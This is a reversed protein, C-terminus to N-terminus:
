RFALVKRVAQFLRGGEVLQARRSLGTEGASHAFLGTVTAHVKPARPRILAELRTTETWPILVDQRGHVLHVPVGLPPLSPVPDLLPHHRSATRALLECMEAGAAPDPIRGAPPAFVDFLEREGPPLGERLQIRVPDSDSSYADIASKGWLRSLTRLASATADLSGFGQVLPLLNAGAIWRAYPDPHITTLPAGRDSGHTPQLEGSFSFGLASRFRAYSGWALVKRLHPGGAPDGAAALAQPGGFSFGAVGVGGPTIRPDTALFELSGCVVRQAQAPSLELRTWARIEPVLVHNGAGALARAFRLLSPHELGLVTIGHLLVWGPHPAGGRPAVRLARVEGDVGPLRVTEVGEVLGAPM